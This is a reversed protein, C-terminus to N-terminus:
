SVVPGAGVVARGGRPLLSGRGGIWDVSGSLSLGLAGAFYYNIQARGGPAVGVVRGCLTVSCATMYYVALSPGVSFHGKEFDYGISVTTQNYVGVGEKNVPPLMSCMDQMAFLF